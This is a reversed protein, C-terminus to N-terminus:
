CAQQRQCRDAQRAIRLYGVIFMCHLCSTTMMEGQDCMHTAIKLWVICVNMSTGRLRRVVITLLLEHSVV